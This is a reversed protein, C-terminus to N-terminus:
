EDLQDYKALVAGLMAKMCWDGRTFPAANPKAEAEEKETLYDDTVDLETLEKDLPKLWAIEDDNGTCPLIQCRFTLKTTKKKLIDRLTDAFKQAGHNPKGDTFIM